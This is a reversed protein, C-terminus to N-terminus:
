EYGLLTYKYNPIVLSCYDILPTVVSVNMTLRETSILLTSTNKVTAMTVPKSFQLIIVSQISHCKNCIILM